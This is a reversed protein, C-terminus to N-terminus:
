RNILDFTIHASSPTPAPSQTLSLRYRTGEPSTESVAFGLEDFLHEVLKNKETRIYEAVLTQLGLDQLDKVMLAMLSHELTRGIVRCSMLLTDISATPGTLQVLALLVIGNDGFKDKLRVVYSLWDSRNILSSIFQESHRRTSVNFQNTKHLLQVARALNGPHLRDVEARMLLSDLFDDVSAASDQQAQRLQNQQVMQNRQRDEESATVGDLAACVQAFRRNLQVVDEPVQFVHVEPLAGRVRECEVPNDDVFVMADLGINLEKALSRLNDVKDEWNIRRASFHPLKLQMEPHNEIMAEADSANNKSNIALLVGQQWQDIIQQQFALFVNGPHDGGLKVGAMGDEGIVGGWLTNDLDLVLCKRRRGAAERLVPMIEQAWALGFQSGGAIKALSWLKPDEWAYLGVRRVLADLDLVHVGRHSQAIRLLGDNLQRWTAYQGRPHSFDRLGLPAHAPRVFSLLLVQIGAASLKSCRTDIRHHIDAIWESIQPEPVSELNRLLGPAIDEPRTFVLAMDPAQAYLASSPNLVQQDIQNFGATQCKLLIRDCFAAVELAPALHEIHTSSLLAFRLAKFGPAADIHRIKRALGMVAGPPTPTQLCACAARWLADTESM